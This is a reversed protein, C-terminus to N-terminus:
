GARGRSKSLDIGIVRGGQLRALQAAMNGVSGLGVVAVFDGLEINSVRLATMAITVMRTFPALALEISAPVKICISRPNTLDIRHYHQHGGWNYVMDGPSVSRVLDGVKVVEGVSAYGPTKPFTFWRENGSLCALETAASVLSYCTRVLVERAQLQQLDEDLVQTEVSDPGTFVISNNKM